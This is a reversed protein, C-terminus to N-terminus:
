RTIRALAAQLDVAGTRLHVDRQPFPIEVQNERLKREIAIFLDSRFRTPSQAMTVTWVALEFNLASDGFGLFRVSPAPEKLVAANEM